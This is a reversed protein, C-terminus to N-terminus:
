PNSYKAKSLKKLLWKKTEDLYNAFTSFLFSFQTHDTYYSTSIINRNIKLKKRIRVKPISYRMLFLYRSNSYLLSFGFDSKAGNFKLSHEANKRM